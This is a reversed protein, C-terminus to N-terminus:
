GADLLKIENPDIVGNGNSDKAELVLYKGHFYKFLGSTFILEVAGSSQEDFLVMLVHGDQTRGPIIVITSALPYTRGNVTVLQGKVELTVEGNYRSVNIDGPAALFIHNGDEVNSVGEKLDVSSGFEELQPAITESVARYEGAYHLEWLGGRLANITEYLTVGPLFKVDKIFELALATDVTTKTGNHLNDIVWKLADGKVDYGLADLVEAARVTYEMSSVGLSVEGLMNESRGFHGWSGDHLRQAMLWDSHPGLKEIDTIGTLSELVTVTTPVNKGVMVSLLHNLIIGWGDPTVSLLWEKSANIDDGKAGLELLLDLGMATEYPQPISFYGAWRGPFVELSRTFNLLEEKEDDSLDGFEALLKVTYYYEETVTGHLVANDKAATLHERAWEIALDVSEPVPTCTKLARVAYYTAKASGRAGTHIGWSGDPNQSETLASCLEAKPNTFNGSLRDAVSSFAMVAYATPAISDTDLFPGESSTLYYTGNDNGVLELVTLARGTDFSLPEYLVLAYTLMARERENLGDSSLLEKCRELDATVNGYGIAKFAILRLALYDPRLNRAKELYEAGAEVAISNEPTLGISGLAWLSLATPYFETPSDALYGWGEGNFATLLYTRGDRIAIEIDNESIGTYYEKTLERVAGLAILVTATDQPTSVEGRYHGWGGDPNQIELLEKTVNVVASLADTSNQAKGVTSVLATLLLAKEPVENTDTVTYTIFGLSEDIVSAASAYPLVFLMFLIVATLTRRM